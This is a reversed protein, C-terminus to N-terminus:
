VRYLNEKKDSPAEGSHGTLPGCFTPLLIM